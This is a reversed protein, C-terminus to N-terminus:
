RIKSINSALFMISFLVSSLLIAFPNGTSEKKSLAKSFKITKKTKTPEDFSKSKYEKQTPKKAVKDKKAVKVTVNDVNNSKNFDFTDSVVSVTNKVEGAGIALADIYLKAMKGDDLSPISWTQNSKNYTGKTVKVSKLSLSDEDFIESVRINRATDPGNNTLKVSYRIVDGVVYRFKSVTKTISLDSAPKVVISSEARNNDPNPDVEDGRVTVVNKFTGTSTIKCVIEFRKTQNVALKEINWIGDAGVPESSRIL